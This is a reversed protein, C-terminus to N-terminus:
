GPRGEVFIRKPCNLWFGGRVATTKETIERRSVRGGWGAGQSFFEIKGQTNM